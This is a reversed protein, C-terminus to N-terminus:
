AAGGTDNDFGDETANNENVSNKESESTTAVRCSTVWEEIRDEEFLVRRGLKIHPITEREAYTYLTKISLKTLKSAEEITLLAKM